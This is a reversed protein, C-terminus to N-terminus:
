PYTGGKRVQAHFHEAPLGVQELLVRFKPGLAAQYDRRFREKAELDAFTKSRIDLAEGSYHRSGATHAGDSGATIVVTRPVDPHDKAVRLLASLLRGLALSDIDFRAGAKITVAAM